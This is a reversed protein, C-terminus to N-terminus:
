LAVSCKFMPVTRTPGSRQCLFFFWVACWTLLGQVLTKPDNFGPPQWLEGAVGAAPEGPRGAAAENTAPLVPGVHQM